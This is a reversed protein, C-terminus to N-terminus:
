LRHLRYGGYFGKASDVGNDQLESDSRRRLMVPDRGGLVEERRV